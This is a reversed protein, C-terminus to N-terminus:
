GDAARAPTSGGACSPSGRPATPSTGGARSGGPPGLRPGPSAALRPGLRLRRPHGGRRRRRLGGVPLGQAARLAKCGSSSRRLAELTLGSSGEAGGALAPFIGQWRAARELSRQRERGPVLAGVVWVPPHPRQVPPAPALETVPRVTWFEGTHAYTAPDEAGLLGAYVALGEDLRRARVARGEDSEFSLWNANVAGLGAGLVVRGQSLRDVTAVSQALDWPRYRAVPTLLTGLRIRETRVAAAALLAWASHRYVGEWSFVADWGRAEGLEALEVFERDSTFPVVFGHKMGRLSVVPVSLGQRAPALTTVM